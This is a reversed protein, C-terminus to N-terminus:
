PGAGQEVAPKWEQWTKRQDFSRTTFVVPEPKGPLWHMHGLVVTSGERSQFLYPWGGGRHILQEAGLEAYIPPPESPANAARVSVAVVLPFSIRATLSLGRVFAHSFM